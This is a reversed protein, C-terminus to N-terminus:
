RLNVITQLVQDQTKITQANAQYMRQAVIMAVLEATLDVNSEEVASGQLVGNGSSGPPLPTEGLIGAAPTDVWENNGIPQLGQQNSFSSLLIQGLPQNKGNTYRGTIIGDAGISYGSLVGESYGDQSMSNVSFNGSYQTTKAFNFPIAALGSAAVATSTFLANAPTNLLTGNIDFNLAAPVPNTLANLVGDIKLTVAWSSAIPAVVAANSKAFSFEAIHPAGQSDYITMSTTATIVPVAPLAPAVTRSDLNLVMAATSTPNPPAHAKDIQLKGLTGLKAPIAAAAPGPVPGVAAVAPMGVNGTLNHGANNVLFGNKDEHFQGNRTYSVNNNQDVVRFFGNGSIAIDLPNNTATVNGQSFQQAIAAVRGGSGVQLASSSYISAAYQDAFQAQSQKFGVTSANAVNNGIVDLNKASSNLGSLGQQFSM